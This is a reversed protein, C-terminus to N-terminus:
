RSEREVGSRHREARDVAALVLEDSVPEFRRLEGNRRSGRKRM